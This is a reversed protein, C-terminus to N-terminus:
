LLNRRCCYAIVMASTIIIMEGAVQSVVAHGFEGEEGLIPDIARSYFM